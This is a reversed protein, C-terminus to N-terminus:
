GAVDAIAFYFVEALLLLGIAAIVGGYIINTKPSRSWGKGLCLMLLGACIACSAIVGIAALIGVQTGLPRSYFSDRGAVRDRNGSQTRRQEPGKDGCDPYQEASSPQHDGRESGTVSRAGHSRRLVQLSAVEVNLHRSRGSARRPNLEDVDASRWDPNSGHSVLNSTDDVFPFSVPNATHRSASRVFKDDPPGSIPVPADDIDDNLKAVNQVMEAGYFGMQFNRVAYPAKELQMLLIALLFEM